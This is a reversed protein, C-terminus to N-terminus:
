TSPFEDTCDTMYKGGFVGLRLLESPTLEPRFEPEFSRGVPATREYRYNRQMRDNVTVTTRPVATVSRM